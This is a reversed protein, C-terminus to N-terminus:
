FAATDADTEVRDNVGYDSYPPEFGERQAM